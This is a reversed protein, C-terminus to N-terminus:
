GGCRSDNVVNELGANLEVATVMGAKSGGYRLADGLRHGVIDLGVVGFNGGNGVPHL